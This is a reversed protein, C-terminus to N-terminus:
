SSAEKEAKAQRRQAIRVLRSITPYLDPMYYCALIVDFVIQSDPPVPDKNGSSFKGRVYGMVAVERVLGRERKTMAALIGAVMAERTKDRSLFYAGLRENFDDITM